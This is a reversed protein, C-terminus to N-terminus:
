EEGDAIASPKRMKQGAHHKLWRCASLVNRWYHISNNVFATRDKRPVHKFSALAKRAQQEGWEIHDICASKTSSDKKIM